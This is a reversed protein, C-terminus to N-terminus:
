LFPIFDRLSKKKEVVPTIKFIEKLKDEGIEVNENIKKLEEQNQVIAKKLRNVKNQQEEVAKNAKDQIKNKFKKFDDDSVLSEPKKTKKQIVKKDLMNNIEFVKALLEEEIDIISSCLSDWDKSKSWFEITGVFSQFKKKEERLKSMRNLKEAEVFLRAVTEIDVILSTLLHCTRRISDKSTSISILIDQISMLADSIEERPFVM